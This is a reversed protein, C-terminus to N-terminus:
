DVGTDIVAVVVSPSGGATSGNAALYDWAEPINCYDLYWQEEARPNDSVEPPLSSLISEESQGSHDTSASTTQVTTGSSSENITYDLEACLVSTLSRVRFLVDEPEADKTLVARYWVTTELDLFPELATIGCLALEPTLKGALASPAKILIHSNDRRIEGDELSEPHLVDYPMTFSGDPYTEAGHFEAALDRAPIETKEFSAVQGAGTLARIAASDSASVAYIATEPTEAIKRVSRVASSRDAANLFDKEEEKRVTVTLNERKSVDLPSVSKVSAAALTDLMQLQLATQQRQAAGVNDTQDMNGPLLSTEKSAERIWASSGSPDTGKAAEARVPVATSPALTCLLALALLLSILRKEM